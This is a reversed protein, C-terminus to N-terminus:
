GSTDQEMKQAVFVAKAVNLTSCGMSYRTCHRSKGQLDSGNRKPIMTIAIPIMPTKAALFLAHLTIKQLCIWKEIQFVSFMNSFSYDYFM